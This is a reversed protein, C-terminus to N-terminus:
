AESLDKYYEIRGILHRGIDHLHRAISDVTDSCASRFMNEAEFTFDGTYDIDALAKCVAEWDISSVFPAMPEVHNDEKGNNDHVHLAGLRDHGLTRIMNEASQGVLGCHGLDLCATFWPSGIMDVYECFEPGRSCTSDVIAKSITGRQYMNETAIKIGYKECLPLLSNYFEFNMQKLIDANNGEVYYLHQNPHVVVIEAGLMAAIEISRTVKKYAKQSKEPDAFSTPFYAHAQNIYVGNAKATELLHKAETKYDDSNFINDDDRMQEYLTVDVADFGAKAFIGIAKDVGFKKEIVCTNASLVM